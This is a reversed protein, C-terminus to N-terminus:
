GLQEKWKDQDPVGLCFEFERDLSMVYHNLKLGLEPKGNLSPGFM